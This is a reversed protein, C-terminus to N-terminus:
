FTSHLIHKFTCEIIEVGLGTGLIFFGLLTSDPQPETAPPATDRLCVFAAKLLMKFCIYDANVDIIGHHCGVVMMDKLVFHVQWSGGDM